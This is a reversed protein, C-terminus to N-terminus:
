GAVAPSFSARCGCDDLSKGLAAMASQAAAETFGERNAKKM